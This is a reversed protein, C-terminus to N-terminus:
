IMMATIAFMVSWRDTMCCWVWRAPWVTEAARPRFSGSTRGSWTTVVMVWFRRPLTIVGFLRRLFIDFLFGTYFDWERWRTSTTLSRSLTPAITLRLFFDMRQECDLISIPLDLFIPLDIVYLIQEGALRKSPGRSLNYSSMPGSCGAVSTLPSDAWLPWYKSLYYPFFKLEQGFM